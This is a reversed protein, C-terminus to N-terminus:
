ATEERSKCTSRRTTNCTIINFMLTRMKSVQSNGHIREEKEESLCLNSIAPNFHIGLARRVKEEECVVLKPGERLHVYSKGEEQNKKTDWYSTILEFYDNDKPNFGPMLTGNQFRAAFSVMLQISKEEEGM